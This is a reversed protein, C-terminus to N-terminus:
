NIKHSEVGSNGAVVYQMFSVLTMKENLPHFGIQGGM